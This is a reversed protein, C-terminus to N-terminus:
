SGTRFALVKRKEVFAQILKGRNATKFHEHTKELSKKQHPRLSKKATRSAEGHVGQELEEWDVTAERLDYLNIRTVSSKSEKNSGYCKTEM